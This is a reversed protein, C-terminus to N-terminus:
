HENKGPTFDTINCMYYLAIREKRANRRRREGRIIFSAITIVCAICLVFTAYSMSMYNVIMVSFNVVSWACDFM